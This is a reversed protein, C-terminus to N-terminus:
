AGRSSREAGKEAVKSGGKSIDRINEQASQMGKETAKSMQDMMREMEDRSKAIMEVTDQAVELAGDMARRGCARMTGNQKSLLMQPDRFVNPDSLHELTERWYHGAVAAQRRALGTMTRTQVDLIQRMSELATQYFNATANLIESQQSQYTHQDQM